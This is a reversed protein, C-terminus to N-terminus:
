EGVNASLAKHQIQIIRSTHGVALPPQGPGASSVDQYWTLPIDGATIHSWSQGGDDSLLMIRIGSILIKQDDDGLTAVSLLNGDTSADLRNWSAGGDTTKLVLGGQGVGYGTGDRALLVANLSEDGRRQLSWTEGQDESQIVYGFEGALTITGDPGVIVDYLQPENGLEHYGETWDPAVSTWTEGADRSLLVTGFQGVAVALGDANQDVALLRRKNESQFRTWQGGETRRFVLGMQGGIILNGAEVSVDLLAAQTKDHEVPQWNRGGDTSKLIRGPAGVAYGVKGDFDVGFLAEHQTGVTVQEIQSQANGAQGGGFLLLAAVVLGSASYSPKM